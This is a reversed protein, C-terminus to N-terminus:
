YGRNQTPRERKNYDARPSQGRGTSNTWCGQIKRRCSERRANGIADRERGSEKRNQWLCLNKM